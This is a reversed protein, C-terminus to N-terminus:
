LAGHHFLDRSEIKIELLIHVSVHVRNRSLFQEYWLTLVKYRSGAFFVMVLLPLKTECQSFVIISM